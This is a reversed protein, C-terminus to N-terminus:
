LQIENIEDITLVRDFMMIEAIKCDPRPSSGSSWGIGIMENIAQPYSSVSLIQLTNTNRYKQVGDLYITGYGDTGSILAYRKWVGNTGLENKHAYRTTRTYRSLTLGGGNQLATEGYNAINAIITYVFPTSTSVGLNLNSWQGAMRNTTTSKIRYIHNESDYEIVGGTSSGDATQTKFEQGSVVDVLNDYMPAYFVCGDPLQKIDYNRRM